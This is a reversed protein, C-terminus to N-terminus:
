SKAGEERGTRGTDPTVILGPPDASEATADTDAKELADLINGLGKLAIEDFRVQQVDVGGDETIESPSVERMLVTNGNMRLVKFVTGPLFLVRDPLAPDLSTTRRSTMSWILVDTAGIGRPGTHLSTRAHCFAWETVLRGERYWAREADTLRTRLLAPGRYSPLRGLGATVCRALPVHPGAVATRVAADAVRSDGSLYLRVAVLEALADAAEAKSGGRLGPTESMVRSVAGATANYQDSFM